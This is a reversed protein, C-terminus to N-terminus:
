KQRRGHWLISLLQSMRSKDVGTVDVLTNEVPEQKHYSRIHGLCEARSGYGVFKGRSYPCNWDSCYFKQNELQPRRIKDVENIDVHANEVPEQQHYSRIHGLCEARSGYGVFKDKSYPCNGDSCYFKQNILQASRKMQERVAQQKRDDVVSRVVARKMSSHDFNEMHDNWLKKTTFGIFNNADYHCGQVDCFFRDDYGYISTNERSHERNAQPSPTAITSHLHEQQRLKAKTEPDQYRKPHITSVHMELADYTLFGPRKSYSCGKLVCFYKQTPTEYTTAPLSPLTRKSDAPRPRPPPDSESRTQSAGGEVSSSRLPSTKNAATTKPGGSSSSTRRLRGVRLGPRTERAEQSHGVDEFSETVDAGALDLLVKEGSSNYLPPERLLESEVDRKNNVVGQAAAVEAPQHAQSISDKVLAPVNSAVSSVPGGGASEGKGPQLKEEREEAQSTFEGTSDLEGGAATILPAKALHQTSPDNRARQVVRLLDFADHRDESRFAICVAICKRLRDSYLEPIDDFVDSEEM